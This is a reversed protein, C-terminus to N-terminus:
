CKHIINHLHLWMLLNEELLKYARSTSFDKCLARIISYYSINYRNTPMFGLRLESGFWIIDPGNSSVPLASPNEPLNPGNPGVIIEIRFWAMTIVGLQYIPAYVNRTLHIMKSLFYIYSWSNYIFIVYCAYFIFMVHIYYKHKYNIITHKNKICTMNM